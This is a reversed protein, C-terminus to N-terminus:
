GFDFEHESLIAPTQCIGAVVSVGHSDPHQTRRALDSHRHAGRDALSGIQLQTRFDVGTVRQAREGIRGGLDDDVEGVGVDHHVVQLEEDVVTDVGDDTGGTEGVCSDLLDAGPQGGTRRGSHQDSRVERDARHQRHVERLLRRRVKLGSLHDFQVVRLLGIRRRAGRRTGGLQDGLRSFTHRGVGIDGAGAQGSRASGIDVADRHVRYSEGTQHGM